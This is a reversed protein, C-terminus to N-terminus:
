EKCNKINNLYEEEKISYEENLKQLDEQKQFIQSDYDELLKKLKGIENLLYEELNSPYEEALDQNNKLIINLKEEVLCKNIEILNIQESSTLIDYMIKSFDNDNINKIFKFMLNLLNKKGENSKSVSKQSFNCKLLLENLNNNLDIIQNKLNMNEKIYFNNQRKIENLEKNIEFYEDKLFKNKSCINNENKSLESRSRHHFNYIKFKYTKNYVLILEQNLLCLFNNITEFFINDDLEIDYNNINNITNIQNILKNVETLFQNSIYKISDNNKSLSDYKEKFLILLNLLQNLINNIKSKNNTIYEDYYKLKNEIENELNNKNNQNELIIKNKEKIENDMEWLVYRIKNYDYSDKKNNINVDVKNKDSSELSKEMLNKIEKIKDDKYNNRKNFIENIKDEEKFNNGYKNLLSEYKKNLISYKINIDNYKEELKLLKNKYNNNNKKVPITKMKINGEETDKIFYNMNEKERKKKIESETILKKIEKHLKEKDIKYKKNLEKLKNKNSNNEKELENKENTLKDIEEKLNKNELVLENRELNTKEENIQNKNLINDNFEKQLKIIEEKYEIIEKKLKKNEKKIQKKENMLKEFDKNIKEFNEKYNILKQNIELFQENNMNISENNKITTLKNKNAKYEENEKTLEILDNKLSNIMSHALILQKKYKESELKTKALDIVEEANFNKNLLGNKILENEITKKLLDAYNQQEAANIPDKIIEYDDSLMEDTIPLIQLPNIKKIFQECKYKYKELESLKKSQAILKKELKTIYNQISSDDKKNENSYNLLLTDPQRTQFQM